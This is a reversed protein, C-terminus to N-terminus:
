RASTNPLCARSVSFSSGQPSDGLHPQDIFIVEVGVRKLLDLLVWQHAYQRALRDPSLCLVVEFVAESALDLLRDLAPRALQAGSVAEDIFYHASALEYGEQKAYAELAAIQSEVTAEEEQQPTSVRAYLAAQRIM